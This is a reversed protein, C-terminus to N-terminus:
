SKEAEVLVIPVSTDAFLEPAPPFYLHRRDGYPAVYKKKEKGDEVEPHDRRIRVYYRHRDAALTHPDFYPYAVGAMDGSGQIGYRARAEQNSVRVIGAAALLSEPIKLGAFMELDSARLTSFSSPEFITTSNQTIAM